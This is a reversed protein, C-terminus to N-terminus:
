HSPIPAHIGEGIEEIMKANFVELDEPSRSTVL